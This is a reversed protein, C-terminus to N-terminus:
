LGSEGGTGPRGVRGEWFVKQERQLLSAKGEQEGVISTERTRRGVEEQRERRLSLAGSIDKGLRSERREARSEKLHGPSQINERERKGETFFKGKVM